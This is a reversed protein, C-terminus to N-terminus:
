IHDSRAMRGVQAAAAATHPRLAGAHSAKLVSGTDEPCQPLPDTMLIMALTQGAKIVAAFMPQELQVTRFKYTLRQCTHSSGIQETVGHGVAATICSLFHAM